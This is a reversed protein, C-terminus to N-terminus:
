AAQAPAPPTPAWLRNERLLVWLVDVRRRLNLVERSTVLVRLDPAEALLEGLWPAEGLLHEFNDLLLLMNKDSLYERLADLVSRDASERAGVGQAIRPLVLAPDSVQGLLVYSMGDAFEREMRLGVEFALRSKGVGGVGVLTVVRARTLLGVLGGALVLLQIAAM